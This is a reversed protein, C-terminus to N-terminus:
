EKPSKRCDRKFDVVLGGFLNEDAEPLVERRRESLIEGNGLRWNDGPIVPNARLSSSGGSFASNGSAQRLRFLKLSYSDPLAM